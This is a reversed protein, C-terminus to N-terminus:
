DIKQCSVHVFIDNILLKNSSTNLHVRQMEVSDLNEQEYHVKIVTSQSKPNKTYIWWNKSMRLPVDTYIEKQM